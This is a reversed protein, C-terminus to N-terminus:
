PYNVLFSIAVYNPNYTTKLAQYTSNAPYNLPILPFFYSTEGLLFTMQLLDSTFRKLSFVNALNGGSLVGLSLVKPKMCNGSVIGSGIQIGCQYESNFWYNVVNTYVGNVLVNLEMTINTRLVVSGTMIFIQPTNPIQSIFSMNAAGYANYIEPFYGSTTMLINPMASPLSTINSFPYEQNFANFYTQLTYKSIIVQSENAYVSPVRLPLDTPMNLTTPKENNTPLITGNIPYSVYDPTSTINNMLHSDMYLLTDKLYISYQNNELYESLYTSMVNPLTGLFQPLELYNAIADNTKTIISKSLGPAITSCAGTTFTINTDDIIAATGGDFYYIYINIIFKSQTITSIAQGSKNVNFGTENYNYYLNFSFNSLTLSMWGNNSISVAVHNSQVNFNKFTFNTVTYNVQVIGDYIIVSSQYSDSFTLNNFISPAISAVNKSMDTIGRSFVFGQSASTYAVLTILVFIKLM